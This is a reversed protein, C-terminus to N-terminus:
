SSTSSCKLFTVNYENPLEAENRDEGRTREVTMVIKRPRSSKGGIKL